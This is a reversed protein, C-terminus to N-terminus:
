PSERILAATYSLDMVEVRGTNPATQTLRMRLRAGRVTDTNAPWVQVTQVGAGILTVSQTPNIVDDVKTLVDLTVGNDTKLTLAVERLVFDGATGAPWADQTEIDFLVDETSADTTQTLDDSWRLVRGLGDGGAYVVTSM